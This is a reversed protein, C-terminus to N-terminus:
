PKEARIWVIMTYPPDQWYEKKIKFGASNLLNVLDKYKWEFTHITEWGRLRFIKKIGTILFEKLGDIRIKYIARSIFNEKNKASSRGGYVTVGLLLSGHPRLVRWAEKVAFYPDQFHDLVSRMHVWDFSNSCFPLNEACGALFNCSRSLSPFARLANPRADFNSFVNITPDINVYINEDNDEPLFHRLMGEGGGVDLVRGKLSFERKYVPEMSSIEKLYGEFDDQKSYREFYCEEWSSQVRMWDLFTKTMCYDPRHIRFDFIKDEKTEKLLFLSSCEKCAFKEGNTWLKSKCQPCSLLNIIEPILKVHM